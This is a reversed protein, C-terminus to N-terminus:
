QSEGIAVPLRGCNAILECSTDAKKQTNVVKVFCVIVHQVVTHHEIPLRSCLRVTLNHNKYVNGAIAPVQQPRGLAAPAYRPKQALAAERPLIKM